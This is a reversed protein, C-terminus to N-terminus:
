SQLKSSKWALSNRGNFVVAWCENGNIVEDWFEDDNIEDRDDNGVEDCSDNEGKSKCSKILLILEENLVIPQFFSSATLWNM